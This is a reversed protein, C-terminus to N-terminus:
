GTQEDIEERFTEGELINEFEIKGKTESLIVANYPDWSCIVDGKKIASDNKAILHSGYPINATMMVIGTKPNTIKAEGSRGIVVEVKNGEKDKTPITKLEDIEGM